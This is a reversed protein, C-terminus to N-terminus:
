CSSEAIDSAKQVLPTVDLSTDSTSGTEAHHEKQPDHDTDSARTSTELASLRKEAAQKVGPDHDTEQIHTLIKEDIIKHIAEIRVEINTDHQAMTNLVEPDDLERVARMRVRHDSNKWKPRFYDFLGM